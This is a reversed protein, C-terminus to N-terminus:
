QGNKIRRVLGTLVMGPGVEELNTEGQQLFYEITESWRVPHTIQQALTHHIDGAQYAQATYNAIVPITPSSFQFPSLFTQFQEQAARMHSSHFAGSVKLPVVMTAGAQECVVQAQKVEEKLGSLVIQTYSNINALTVQELSHQTLLKKIVEAKLGIIAAMAGGSAQSMLEGRKKVLQLGTAFDFVEAALLANYEGLSHGAVLHPKQGTDQIKKFFSLANVVYLAPQTYQTQSLQQQPDELCLTEISYGLIRDAQATYEPFQNFLEKGMGISQSGQGPFLYISM